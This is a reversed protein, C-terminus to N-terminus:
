KLDMMGNGTAQWTDTPFDAPLRIPTGKYTIQGNERTAKLIEDGDKIKTQKIVTDWHTGGRTKREQPETSGPSPQSNGKEHEPIKWSNDREWINKEFGKEREERPGKYHLHQHMLTGSTESATKMEKWEKKRNQSMSKWWETRWTMYRDEAETIRSNIGELTNNM